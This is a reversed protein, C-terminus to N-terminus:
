LIVDPFGREIRQVYDLAEKATPATVLLDALWTPLGEAPGVVKQGERVLQKAWVVNDQVRVNSLFSLDSIVGSRPCNVYSYAVASLPLRPVNPRCPIGLAIFLTEEVLDVGWTRLNTEHVQGGGMRANVEILQPGHSTYKLEVHFVGASFGLALCCKVALDKLAAQQEKPLLSPCVAWTENFYPEICPGNDSVAAYCWEGESLVIDVDVEPGDLYQELLLTLDVVETATIGAGSGDNQVLAGSSVVLQRLEQTVCLYVDLLDKETAVKKVGLSAAGSIPKLVAPFGVVRAAEQLEEQRRIIYNAPTPLGAEKLMQRTRHKDRAADIAAPSPGPLGLVEALRAVVPVSLEVFTAIADAQGTLGDKGLDQILETSQRMIEESSQAMDVPLFKAIVGEEVLSRAWSTPHEIVVLKIGLAAARELIFRKGPYGASFIVVTAGKALQRRLDQADPGTATLLERPVQELLEYTATPPLGRLVRERQTASLALPLSNKPSHILQQVQWRSPSCPSNGGSLRACDTDLQGPQLGECEGADDLDVLEFDFDTKARAPGPKALPSGPRSRPAPTTWHVAAEWTGSRQRQLNLAEPLSTVKPTHYRPKPSIPSCDPRPQVASALGEFCSLRAGM